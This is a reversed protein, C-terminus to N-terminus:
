SATDRRGASVYVTYAYVSTVLTRNDLNAVLSIYLDATPTSFKM